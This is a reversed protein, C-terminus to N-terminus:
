ASVYSHRKKNLEEALKDQSFNRSKRLKKLREGFM